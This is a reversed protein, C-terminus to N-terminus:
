KNSKAAIDSKLTDLITELQMADEPGQAYFKQKAEESAFCRASCDGCCLLDWAVCAHCHCISFVYEDPPWDMGLCAM